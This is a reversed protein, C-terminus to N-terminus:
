RFMRAALMIGGWAALVGLVVSATAYTVALAVYGGRVTNLTELAFTSYTTFAGCFGTGCLLRLGRRRGSDPGRRSLSELLVGLVLAGVLNIGFTATPWQSATHPLQQEIAYRAATGGAGGIFVIAPQRCRRYASRGFIPATM